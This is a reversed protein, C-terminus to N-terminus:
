ATDLTGFLLSVSVFHIVLVARTAAAEHPVIPCGALKALFSRRDICFCEGGPPHICGEVM